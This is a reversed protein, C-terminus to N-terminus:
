KADNEVSTCSSAGVWWRAVFEMENIGERDEGAYSVSLLDLLTAAWSDAASTFRFTSM